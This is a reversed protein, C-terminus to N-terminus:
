LRTSGIAVHGCICQFALRQNSERSAQGSRQMDDGVREGWMEQREGSDSVFLPM